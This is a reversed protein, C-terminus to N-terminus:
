THYIGLAAFTCQNRCLSRVAREAGISVRLCLCREVQALELEHRVQAAVRKGRPSRECCWSVKMCSPSPAQCTKCRHQRFIPGGMLLRVDFLAGDAFWAPLQRWAVSTDVADRAVRRAGAEVARPHLRAASAKYWVFLSVFGRVGVQHRCSQSLCDNAECDKAECTAHPFSLTADAVQWGSAPCGEKCREQQNCPFGASCCRQFSGQRPLIERVPGAKQLTSQNNHRSNAKQPEPAKFSDYVRPRKGLQLQANHTDERTKAQGIMCFKGCEIGNLLILSKGASSLSRGSGRQM